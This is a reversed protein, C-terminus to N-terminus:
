PKTAPVVELKDNECAPPANVPNCQTMRQGPFAVSYGTWRAPESAPYDTSVIQAGSAIAEDRRRPNNSRAQITDFDARTRVLYGQKVLPGIQAPTGDNLETFAADPSSPDANPFLIRGNLAPHGQAYTFALDRNDLLLVIRGRATALTPWGGTGIAEHLNAHHGRVQDPTIIEPRSFVSLVEKDLADFLEPTVQEATIAGNPRTSFTTKYEVLIFIPLHRPHAKSWARVEQLCRVFLHCRSRQDINQMHMVKFGAQDMEHDPDFDPDPPLRAAAVREAIDPRAFRGGHPDAFVDLEIQRIGASLQDALRPHSYDLAAASRMDRQQLLKMESTGLGAHYSNHTGIIQIQNIRISDDQAAHLNVSGALIILGSLLTLFRTGPKM